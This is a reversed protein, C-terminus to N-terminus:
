RFTFAYLGKGFSSLARVLNLFSLSLYLYFRSNLNNASSFSVQSFVNEFSYLENVSKAASHVEILDLESWIFDSNKFCADNIENLAVSKISTLDFGFFFSPLLHLWYIDLQELINLESIAPITLTPIGRKLFELQSTGMGLALNYYKGQSFVDDSSVNQYFEFQIGSQKIFKSGDLRSSFSKIDDTFIDVNIPYSPYKNQINELAWILPDIKWKVARGMYVLNLKNKLSSVSLDGSHTTIPIGTIKIEPKSIKTIDYLYNRSPNDITLVLGDLQLARYLKKPSIIKFFHSRISLSVVKEIAESHVDWLLFKMKNAICLPILGIQWNFLIMCYEEGCRNDAIKKITRRISSKEKDILRVEASHSAELLSNSIFGGKHDLILMCKSLEPHKALGLIISQVGGPGDSPFYFLYKNM